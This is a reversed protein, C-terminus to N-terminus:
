RVNVQWVTSKGDVTVTVTFKAGPLAAFLTLEFDGRGRSDTLNSGNPAAVGLLANSSSVSFQRGSLPGASRSMARFSEVTNRGIGARISISPSSSLPVSEVTDVPILAISATSRGTQGGSTASLIVVGSDLATLTTSGGSTTSISGKSNSVSWTVPSNPIPNGAADRPTATLAVSGRVILSPSAPTVTVSAVPVAIVSVPITAPGVGDVTVAITANGAAVATVVGNPTVSAVGSANSSWVVTRGTLPLVAGQTDRAVVTAQVTTGTTLSSDAATATVSAVPPPSVTLAITAPGVGDVTVGITTSGVAVASIVGTSSVTAVGTASSSWSVVRGTLSLTGGAADRAVVTAQVSVGTTLSSDPATVSVSAVPPPTVVLPFSAPGVGDVAVGITASGVAVASVVGSASVSAVGTASSSWVVTRGTLSLVNGQADRAVVSAQVTVGPTLSSDPASVSVTAVQAPVVVPPVVTIPLTAPGVGDVTVSITANGQAIASVLGSSSVSAISPSGSTWVVNRGSLSLTNGAADRATATAQVTTGVTLTTSPASVSVAAVSVPAVTLAFTAPTGGGLTGDITTSGIAVATVVGASNVTGVATNASKWTPTRGGLPNGNATGIVNGASDRATAVLPQTQAPQLTAATPAVVVSAVSVLDSNITLTDSVVGNAGAASAIVQLGGTPANVATITATGSGASSPTVSLLSPDSTSWTIARGGLVNNGADLAQASVSRAYLAGVHITGTVPALVVRAVAVSAVTLPVTATAPTAQGPSSASLTITTNGPVIGTVVGSSSVSAVLPDAVSWTLTRGTPSLPVAPSAGQLTATLQASSGVTVTPASPSISATAVPAYTVTVSASASPTSGSPGANPAAVTITVTGPAIAIVSGSQSVTAISVDSSSWVQTRGFLQNGASDLLSAIFARGQGEVISASSPIIAISAVPATTVTLAVTAQQGECTALILAAGTGIATVVGTQSVTAVSPAGSIWTVVRGTLPIGASDRPTASIQQSSGVTLALTTPAVVLSAVPVPTVDIIAKGVKGEATASIEARGPAVATVVGDSAVSAVAANDSSWTIPRGALERGLSDLSQAVLRVTRGTSLTLASPTIVISSVPVRSVTLRATGSKGEVNATITVSGAAFANVLGTSSVSAIAPASSSWSILRGSLTAGTSDTAIATLQLSEGALLAGADPSVRVAAVPVSEVTVLASGTVGDITGTITAVGSSIGTVTGNAAVTAIGLASSSWTIPRGPVPAGAADLGEAQLTITAGVRVSATSPTLRVLSVPLASVTVPVITSLGRSSLAIRTAGAAVGTVLGSQTVTAVAPNEVSWFIRADSIVTGGDDLVSAAITSTAGVSLQLSPPTATLRAVPTSGPSSPDGCSLLLLGYALAAITRRGVPSRLRM